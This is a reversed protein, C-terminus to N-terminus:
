LYWAGSSREQRQPSPTRRNSRTRHFRSRRSRGSQSSSFSSYSETRQWKPSPPRPSAVRRRPPTKRTSSGSSERQGRLAGGTAGEDQVVRPTTLLQSQLLAQVTPGLSPNGQAEQLREVLYRVTQTGAVSAEDERLNLNQLNALDEDFAM